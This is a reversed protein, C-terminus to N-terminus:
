LSTLNQYRCNKIPCQDHKRCKVDLIIADKMPINPELYFFIAIVSSRKCEPNFSLKKRPIKLYKEVM